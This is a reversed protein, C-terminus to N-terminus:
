LVIFCWNELMVFAHYLVICPIKMCISHTYGEGVAHFHTTSLRFTSGRTELLFCSECTGGLEARVSVRYLCDSVIFTLAVCTSIYIKVHDYYYSTNIIDGVIRYSVCMFTISWSGLINQLEEGCEVWERESEDDDIGWMKNWVVFMRKKREEAM